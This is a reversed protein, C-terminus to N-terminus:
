RKGYKEELKLAWSNTMNDSEIQYVGNANKVAGAPAITSFNQFEVDGGLLKFKDAVKGDIQDLIEFVANVRGDHVLKMLGAMIVAKVSPGKGRGQEVAKASELIDTVTQKPEDLMRGLVARLSGTPLEEPETHGYEIKGPVAEPLKIEKLKDLNIISAEDVCMTANPYITYFKPYEVDIEQAIKGDIRDLSVQIARMNGRVCARVLAAIISDFNSQEMSKELAVFEDWRLELIERFGETLRRTDGTM